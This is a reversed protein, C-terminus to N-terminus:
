EISIAGNGLRLKVSYLGKPDSVEAGEILGKADIAYTANKAKEFDIKGNAASVEVNFQPENFEIKANSGEVKLLIGKPIQFECRAGALSSLDMRATDGSLVPDAEGKQPSLKCSWHLTRDASTTFEFKGNSFPIQINKIEAPLERSENVVAFGSEIKLDKLFDKSTTGSVHILGGLIQVSDTQDDVKIIPTLLWILLVCFLLLSGLTGLFGITLWKVIPSKSPKAPKLGRELLYRNAATEPEGVSTLISEISQSPDRSQASLVHSKIELIIEARDSASVSSLAKEMKNLYDDLKHNTTM